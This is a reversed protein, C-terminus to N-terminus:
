INKAIECYNSVSLNEPRLNQDILLSNLIEIYKGLNNKIKKRRQSFAAKSVEDIKDIDILCYNNHPTFELITGDVKPPPTFLHSPVDLLRTINYRSQVVVSLKGYSKNDPKAIIRNAVEKQFM